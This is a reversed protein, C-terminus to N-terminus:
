SAFRFLFLAGHKMTRMFFQSLVWDFNVVLVPGEIIEVQFM